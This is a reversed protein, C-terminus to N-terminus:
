MESTHFAAPQYEIIGGANLTQVKGRKEGFLLSRKEGDALYLSENAVEKEASHLLHMKRCRTRSKKPLQLRTGKM